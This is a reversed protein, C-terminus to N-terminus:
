TRCDEDTRGLMTTAGTAGGTDNGHNLVKRGQCAPLTGATREFRTDADAHHM